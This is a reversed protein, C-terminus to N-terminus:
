LGLKKNCFSTAEILFHYFNSWFMGDEPMRIEVPTKTCQGNKRPLDLGTMAEVLSTKGGSQEGFIGFIPM